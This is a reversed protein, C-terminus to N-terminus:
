KEHHKMHNRFGSLTVDLRHDPDACCIEWLQTASHGSALWDDFAQRDEATLTSLYQCTRCGHNSSVPVVSSLRKSLSM